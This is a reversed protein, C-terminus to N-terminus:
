QYETQTGKRFLYDPSVSKLIVRGLMEDRRESNPTVVIGERIHLDNGAVTKGVTYEEMVAKSFPGSYLVPVRPLGLKDCVEQLEDRHLFWGGGPKGMYIDFVSFSAKKMGYHLDQVGPGFIEGFVTVHDNPFLKTIRGPVDVEKVVRMYLNHANAENDKFVLGKQGLGKSYVLVDGNIMESHGMHPVRTVGCFTGHLKETFEVPESHHLVDPYTKFNEIDYSVTHGYCAAVEGSMHSPIPPEYKTIELLDAVDQGEHEFRTAYLDIDTGYVIEMGETPYLLIGQSVCGRLKIAKIRNHDPGALKGTMDLFTILKEPLVSQEPLYIALDGPRFRGKQTVCRYDGVVALEIRDADPIPEVARVRVIPVSFESM